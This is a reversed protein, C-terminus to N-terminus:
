SPEPLSQSNTLLLKFIPSRLSRIPQIMGRFRQIMSIVYGFLKGTNCKRLSVNIEAPPETGAYCEKNLFSSSCRKTDVIFEDDYWSWWMVRELIRMKWEFTTTHSACPKLSSLVMEAM